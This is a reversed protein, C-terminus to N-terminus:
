LVKEKEYKISKVILEDFADLYGDKDIETIGDEFWNSYDYIRLDLGLSYIDLIMRRLNELYERKGSKYWALLCCRLGIFKDPTIIKYVQYEDFNSSFRIPFITNGLITPSSVQICKTARVDDIIFGPWELFNRFASNDKSSFVIKSLSIFYKGNHTCSCDSNGLLKNCKIGQTIMSQFNAKKYLFAHYYWSFDLKTAFEIDKIIKEGDM